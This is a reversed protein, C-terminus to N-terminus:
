KGGSLKGSVQDLVEAAIREPNYGKGPLRVLPKGHKVCWAGVDEVHQHSALGILILVLRTDARRIPAELPASSAHERATTWECESLGFAREIRRIADERPEGGILVIRSGELLERVRAVNDSYEREEEPENPEDPERTETLAARVRPLDPTAPLRPRAVALRDAVRPDATTIGVKGLEGLTEDVKLWDGATDTEPENVIRKIHYALKSLLTNSRKGRSEIADEHAAAADLRSRLDAWQAPDGPDDLRMFRPLFVGEYKTFDTLLQYADSQDQDASTLWSSEELAVRLASQAEALLSLASRRREGATAPVRQILRAARALNTYNEAISRLADDSPLPKHPNVQWIYCGVLAKGRVILSRIREIQRPEDDTNRAARRDIAVGCAEAKLECREVITALDPAHWEVGQETAPAPVDISRRAAALEPSTGPVKIQLMQDGIKLPVYAASKPLQPPVIIVPGEIPPSPIKTPASVQPPAKANDSRADGGQAQSSELEVSLSKSKQAIWESLVSLSIALERNGGVVSRLLLELAGLPDPPQGQSM